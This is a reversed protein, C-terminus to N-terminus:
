LGLAKLFEVTIEGSIGWLLEGDYRQFYIVEEERGNRRYPRKEHHSIDALWSLPITFARAVEEPQLKLHIPPKVVGVIPTIAYGSHTILESLRGLIRIGDKHIGIEEFTERLATDAIEEDEPESGGGPFAVQGKHTAVSETRRIFLVQWEGDQCFLPILVAARRLNEASKVEETKNRGDNHLLRNAIVEESLEVQSVNCLGL